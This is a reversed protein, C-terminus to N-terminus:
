FSTSRKCSIVRHVVPSEAQEREDAYQGDGAPRQKRNGRTLSDLFIGFFNEAPRLEGPQLSQPTGIEHAFVEGPSGGASVTFSVTWRVASSVSTPSVSLLVAPSVTALSLSVVLTIPSAAMSLVRSIAVVIQIPIRAIVVIRWRLPLM